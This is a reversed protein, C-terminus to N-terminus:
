WRIVGGIFFMTEADKLPHVRRVGGDSNYSGTYEYVQHRYGFEMSSRPGPYYVVGVGLQLSKRRFQGGVYPRTRGEDIPFYKGRPGLKTDLDRKSHSWGYYKEHHSNWSHRYEMGACSACLILLLAAWRM